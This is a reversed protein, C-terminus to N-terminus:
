KTKVAVDVFRGWVDRKMGKSWAGLDYTVFLKNDTLTEEIAMYHTTLVGSTMRVVNSWTEGHDSSVALYNGNWSHEPHAWCAKQPIRVGFAAVLLGSRLEILEPDVVAGRLDDPNNEDLLRGKSGKFNRFHDVWLEARYIDLGAFVRPQHPSWTVGEDDSFAERLERGTRMFCILRGAKPGKSVRALVPEGFGETGIKPDVAVTSVMKWHQGKDKSRVLIVRSKMMSPMYTSPTSDGKLFGYFTTLLDGDPLELIRRHLRQADHPHGGDDKSCYFDAGPIEFVVEKPGELTRWDNTSTYLQGLGENTRTSPTIYTDLALITGDRLQVAGGEMNLGNEGAKLPLVVWTNGDDRSVRTEMAWPYVMRSTPFPKEPVQAQLVLAGSATRLLSPQLGRPLVMREEGFSFRLHGDAEIMEPINRRLEISGTPANTIINPEAAILLTATFACFLATHLRTVIRMM